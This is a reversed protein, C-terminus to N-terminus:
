FSSSEWSGNFVSTLPPIGSTLIKTFWHCEFVVTCTFCPFPVDLFFCRQHCTYITHDAHKSWLSAREQIKICDATTSQSQSTPARFEVCCFGRIHITLCRCFLALFLGRACEDRHLIVYHDVCSGTLPFLLRYECSRPSTQYATIQNTPITYVHHFCKTLM